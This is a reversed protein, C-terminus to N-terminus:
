KKNASKKKKKKLYNNWGVCWALNEKASLFIFITIKVIKINSFLSLAFIWQRYIRLMQLLKWWRIHCTFLRLHYIKCNEKHNRSYIQVQRGLKKMLVTFIVISIKERTSFLLFTFFIFNRYRYIRWHAITSGCWAPTFYEIYLYSIDAMERM